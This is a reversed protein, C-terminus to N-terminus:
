MGYGVIEAISAAVACGAHSSHCGQWHTVQSFRSCWAKEIARITEHPMAAKDKKRRRSVSM